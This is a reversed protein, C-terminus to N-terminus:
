ALDAGEALSPVPPVPDATEPKAATTGAGCEPCKEGPTERLDYGCNTCLGKRRRRREPMRLTHKWLHRALLLWIFGSLLWHPGVVANWTAAAPIGGAKTGTGESYGFGFKAKCVDATDFVHDYVWDGDRQEMQMTEASLSKEPNLELTSFGLLIAGRHSIAGQLRSGRDFLLLADARQYSRHWLWALGATLLLLVVLGLYRRPPLRVTSRRPATPTM